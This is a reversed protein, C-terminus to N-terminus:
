SLESLKTKALIVRTINESSRLVIHSEKCMPRDAQTMISTLRPKM